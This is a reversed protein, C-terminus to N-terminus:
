SRPGRFPGRVGGKERRCSRSPRAVAARGRPSVQLRVGGERAPVVEVTTGGSGQGTAIGSAASGGERAPVVEVTTGGSGPGPAIDQRRVAGKERRCSRLPRAVAARGRPSTKAGCEETRVRARGRPDHRRLCAGHPHKPHHCPAG